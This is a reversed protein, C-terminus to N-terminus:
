QFRKLCAMAYGNSFEKIKTKQLEESSWIKEEYALLLLTEVAQHLAQPYQGLMRQLADMLAIDRQRYSMAKEAIATTDKCLKRYDLNETAIVSM